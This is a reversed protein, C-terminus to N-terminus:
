VQFNGPGPLLKDTEKSQTWASSASAKADEAEAEAKAAEAKAIKDAVDERDFRRTDYRDIVPAQSVPERIRTQFKQWNNGTDYDGARLNDWLAVIDGFEKYGGEPQWGWPFASFQDPTAPVAPTQETNHMNFTPANNGVHNKEDPTRRFMLTIMQIIAYVPAALLSLPVMFM